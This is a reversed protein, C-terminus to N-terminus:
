SLDVLIHALYIQLSLDSVVVLEYQLSVFYIFFQLLSFRVPDILLHLFTFLLDPLSSLNIYPILLICYLYHLRNVSAFLVLHLVLHFLDIGFEGSTHAAWSHATLLARSLLTVLYSTELLSALDLGFPLLLVSM